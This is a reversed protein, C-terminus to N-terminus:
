RREIDNDEVRERRRNVDRKETYKSTNKEETKKEEKEDSGREKM